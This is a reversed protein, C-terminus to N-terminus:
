NIGLTRASLERYALRLQWPADGLARNIKQELERETADRLSGPNLQVRVEGTGTAHVTVLHDESAASVALDDAQERLRQLQGV